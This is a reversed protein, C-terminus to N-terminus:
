FLKYLRDFSDNASCYVPDCYTPNLPATPSGAEMRETIKNGIDPLKCGITMVVAKGNCSGVMIHDILHVSQVM